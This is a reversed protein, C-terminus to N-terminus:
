SPAAGPAAWGALDVPRSAEPLPDLRYHVTRYGRLRHVAPILWGHLIPYKAGLARAATGAEPGTLETATAAMAEGTPVGRITAPAVTVRPNRRLRKHKGTRDWTRFYAHDGAVAIHVPTGVPTGDRRYTTLLVYTQRALPALLQTQTSAAM